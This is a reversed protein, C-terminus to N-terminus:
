ERKKRLDICIGIFVILGGVLAMPLGAPYALRMRTFYIAAGILLIVLGFAVAYWAFRPQFLSQQMNPPRRVWWKHAIEVPVAAVTIAVGVWFVTPGDIHAFDYLGAIPGMILTTLGTIIIARLWWPAEYESQRHYAM